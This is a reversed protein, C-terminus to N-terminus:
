MAPCPLFETEIGPRERNGTVAGAAVYAPALAVSLYASTNAM